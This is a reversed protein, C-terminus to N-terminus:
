HNRLSKLITNEFNTVMNNFSYKNKTLYLSNAGMEKRKEPNDILFELKEKMQYFNNKEFLFGNYGDTILDKETGDGESAIVPLGFSMAQHIALGGLSPLIFIDSILLFKALNKGVQHGTFIINKISLSIKELTERYAGDGVILLFAREQLKSFALILDDVRKQATLRGLFIIVPLNVPINLEKRLNQLDYERTIEAIQKQTDRDDTVNTAVYTQVKRDSLIYYYEASATSYCIMADLNQLIKKVLFNHIAAKNESLGPMKGMGWGIVPVNNIKAWRFTVFNSVMRPTPQIIILDPKIESLINGIEKQYWLYPIRWYHNKVKILRANSLEDLIKVDENQDTNGAILFLNFNENQGIQEFLTKNYQAPVRQFFVINFAM